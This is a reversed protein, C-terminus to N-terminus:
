DLINGFDRLKLLRSISIYVMLDRFLRTAFIEHLLTVLPQFSFFFFNLALFSMTKTSVAFGDM